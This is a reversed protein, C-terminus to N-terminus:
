FVILSTGGDLDHRLGIEIGDTGMSGNYGGPIAVVERGPYIRGGM